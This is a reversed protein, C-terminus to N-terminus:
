HLSRPIAMGICKAMAEGFSRWLVLGPWTGAFVGCSVGGLMEARVDVGVLGVVGCVGLALMSLRTPKEVGATLWGPEEVGSVEAMDPKM